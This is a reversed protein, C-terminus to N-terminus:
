GKSKSKNKEGNTKPKPKDKEKSSEFLPKDKEKSSESVSKGKEKSSESMSKNKEKNAKSKPKDKERSIFTPATMGKLLPNYIYTGASDSDDPNVPRKNIVLNEEEEEEEKSSKRQTKSVARKAQNMSKKGEARKKKAEEILATQQETSLLPSGCFVCPGVGEEVCIIRGCSLCNPAVTLLPHKTAQCNCIKRNIDLEFSKIDLEKLAEEFSMEKNKSEKKKRNEKKPEPSPFAAARLEKATTSQQSRNKSRKSKRLGAIYDDNSKQHVSINAPWMTEYSQQNSPLSPFSTDTTNDLAIPASPAKEKTVIPAKSSSSSTLPTLSQKKPEPTFRRQVFQRIFALADDGTGLMDMLRETLADSSSTSLIYPLIQTQLTEPDFGLFVSLKDIAWSEFSM